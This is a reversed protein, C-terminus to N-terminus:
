GAGNLHRGLDGHQDGEQKSDVQEYWACHNRQLDQNKVLHGAGQFPQYLYTVHPAGIPFLNKPNALRQENEMKKLAQEVDQIERSTGKTGVGM